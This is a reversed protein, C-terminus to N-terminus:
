RGSLEPPVLQAFAQRAAERERRNRTEELVRRLDILYGAVEPDDLDLALQELGCGAAIDREEWFPCSPGPCPEAEGVTAAIQCASSHTM